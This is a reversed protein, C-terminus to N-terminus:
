SPAQSHKRPSFPVVRKGSLSTKIPDQRPPTRSRKPRWNWPRQDVAVKLFTGRRTATPRSGGDRSNSCGGSMATHFKQSQYAGIDPKSSTQKAGLFQRTSCLRSSVLLALLPRQHDPQPRSEGALSTEIFSAFEEVNTM